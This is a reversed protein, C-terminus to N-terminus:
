LSPLVEKELRDWQTKSDTTIPYLVICYAGTKYVEELKEIVDEANGVAAYEMKMEFSGAGQTRGQRVDVWFHRAEEIAKERDPNINVNMGSMNLGVEKPGKPARGLVLERGFKKCYERLKEIADEWTFEKKVGMSEAGALGPLWW